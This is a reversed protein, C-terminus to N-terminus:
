CQDHQTSCQAIHMGCVHQPTHQWATLWLSSPTDEISSLEPDALLSRFDRSAVPLGVGGAAAPSLVPVAAAAPPPPAHSAADSEGASEAELEGLCSPNIVTPEAVHPPGPANPRCDPEVAAPLGPPALLVEGVLCSDSLHRRGALRCVAPMKLLPPAATLIRAGAPTVAAAPLPCSDSPDGVAPTGSTPQAALLM